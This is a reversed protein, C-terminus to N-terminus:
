ISSLGRCDFHCYLGLAQLSQINFFHLLRGDM